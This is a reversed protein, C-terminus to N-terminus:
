PSPLALPLAVWAAKFGRCNDTSAWGQLKKSIGVGGHFGDLHWKLLDKNDARLENIGLM